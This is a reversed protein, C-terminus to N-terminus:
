NSRKHSAISSSRVWQNRPGCSRHLGLHEHAPNEVRVLQRRELGFRAINAASDGICIEEQFLQPQGPDVKESMAHVQRCLRKIEEAQEAALTAINRGTEIAIAQVAASVQLAALMRDKRPTLQLVMGGIEMKVWGDALLTKSM